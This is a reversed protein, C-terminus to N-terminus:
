IYHNHKVQQGAPNQFWKEGYMVGRHEWADQWEQMAHNVVPKAQM